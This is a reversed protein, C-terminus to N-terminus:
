VSRFAKYLPTSGDPHMVPTVGKGAYYITPTALWVSHMAEDMLEQMRIYMANRKAQDQEVLAQKNLRTYEKNCWFMWNWQLVQDCTFWVTSFSPDPASTFFGYFLQLPKLVDGLQSLTALDVLKIEVDIGVDALNAQVIEGVSKSAEIENGATITLKRPGGGAEKLLTKAREVDREYQPADAWFGLGMSKPILSNARALRSDYAGALIAPVDIAYRVAERVKSDRLNPHTVNMGIWYYGLSLYKKMLYDGDEFRGVSPLEIFGADVEGSELALAGARPDVIIKAEIRDWQPRPTLADGAGGYDAFRKLVLRQKAVHEVFEYPGTGIPHQGFQKGKDDVAKKSVVYGSTMPLTTRKLPAYREKLVVTGEYKGTTKVEALASWDGAYASEVKPKTLGAIREFSFKVDEATVDGYGGHFPIGQKLKFRHRLGDDSSVLEEALMNGAEWTGPKFGTLGEFVAHMVPTDLGSAWLAPDATQFEQESRVLLQKKSASGGGSADRGGCAALLGGAGSVSLWLAGARHVLQRRNIGHEDTM